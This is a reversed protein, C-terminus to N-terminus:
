GAFLSDNLVYSMTGDTNDCYRLYAWSFDKEFDTLGALEEEFDKEVQYADQPFSGQAEKLKELQKLDESTIM